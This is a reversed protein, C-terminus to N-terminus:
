KKDGKLKLYAPKLIREHREKIMTKYFKKHIESICPVGDILKDIKSLNIRPYIKKLSNNIYSFKLSIIVSYYSSKRNNLKIQSTPYDYVRKKIEDPDNLIKKISEEDVLSSYLCSGNDFVPSLKYKNDKKLFGWNGGHRDFNGILADVIYMDFFITITEKVNTIKKNSELLKVIDSYSYQYKEMDTEITSESVDNFPVFQFGTGSVFDRCAVVSEGKYTGLHTDQANIGLMQYIHSGIYESIHNFRLGFPTAKQFKLMFPSKNYLIGIKKESGGYHINSLPYRSFDIIM